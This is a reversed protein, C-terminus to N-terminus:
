KPFNVNEKQQEFQRQIELKELQRDVISAMVLCCYIVFIFVALLVIGVLILFLKM